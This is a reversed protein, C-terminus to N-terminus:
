RDVTEEIFASLRRAVADEDVLECEWLTLGSWGDAALGDLQDSHRAVNRTIKAKWYEANTKPM